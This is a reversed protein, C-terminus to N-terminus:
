NAHATLVEVVQRLYASSPGAILRDNPMSRRVQLHGVYTCYAIRARAAAQAPSLGLERFVEDLFAVRAATVRCVVPGVVPDDIRAMLAADAPGDVLDGFATAFLARLRAKPETVQHLQDIIDQTGLQEWLDLASVILANRDAFHWYFSGKSVGLERALGEVTVQEVGGAAIADLAARSWTAISLNPTKKAHPSKSVTMDTRYRISIVM